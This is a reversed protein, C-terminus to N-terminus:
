YALIKISLHHKWVTYLNERCQYTAVALMKSFTLILIRIYTYLCHCSEPWINPHCFIYNIKNEILSILERKLHGRPHTVKLM